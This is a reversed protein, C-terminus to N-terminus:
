PHFNFSDFFQHKHGRRKQGPRDHAKAPNDPKNPQDHRMGDAQDQTGIM